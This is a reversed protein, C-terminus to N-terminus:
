ARDRARDRIGGLDLSQMFDIHRLLERLQSVSMILKCQVEDGPIHFERTIADVDAVINRMWNPINTAGPPIEIVELQARM